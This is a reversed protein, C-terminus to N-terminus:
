RSTAYLESLYRLHRIVAKSPPWTGGDGQRGNWFTQIRRCNHESAWAALETFWGEQYHVPHANTEPICVQPHRLGSMHQFVALDHDLHANLKRADLKGHTLNHKGFLYQDVGYWDLHPALWSAAAPGVIIAGFRVRSGACLRHGHRQIEAATTANSISKPYGLPNGPNNEHYFALQSHAPASSILAKLQTDLKGDLLQRVDHSPRLSLTVWANGARNPWSSPIQGYDYFIRVSRQLGTPMAANFSEWVGRNCGWVIRGHVAGARIGAAAALAGSRMVERRNLDYITM